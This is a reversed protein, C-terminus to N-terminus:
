DDHKCVKKYQLLMNNIVAMDKSDTTQVAEYQSVIQDIQNDIYIIYIYIILNYIINNINIHIYCEYIYTIQHLYIRLYM